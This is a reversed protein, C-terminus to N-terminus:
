YLEEIKWKLLIWHDYILDALTLFRLGPLTIFFRQTLLVRDIKNGNMVKNVIRDVRYYNLNDAKCILTNDNEDKTAFTPIYTINKVYIEGTKDKKINIIGILSILNNFLYHFRTGGENLFDGLSYIIYTEREDETVHKEINQIVHPGHGIIVDAGAELFTKSIKTQLSSPQHHMWMGFHNSVLVIDSEKKAETIWNCFNNVNDVIPKNFSIIGYIQEGCYGSSFIGGTNDPLLEPDGEYHKKLLTNYVVTFSLFAVKVGKVEKIVYPKNDPFGDNNEDIIEDYKLTGVHSINAKRLSDITRDIGNGGRNDFHNNSTSVVDYGVNKLGLAFGPHTNFIMGEGSYAEGDYLVGPDVSTEKCVARGDDDIYWKETLNEAICTELNGFTLDASSLVEKVDSSFLNEYGSAVREYPDQISQDMKREASLQVKTMGMLDGTVAVSIDEEEFNSNNGEASVPIIVIGSFILISVVILVFFEKRM